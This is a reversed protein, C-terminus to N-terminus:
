IVIRPLARRRPVLLGCSPLEIVGNIIRYVIGIAIEAMVFRVVLGKFCGVQVGKLLKLYFGLQDVHPRFVMRKPQDFRAPLGLTQVRQESLHVVFFLRAFFLYLAYFPGM